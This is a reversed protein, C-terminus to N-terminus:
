PQVAQHQVLKPIQGMCSKRPLHKLGKLLPLAASSAATNLQANLGYLEKKVFTAIRQVM